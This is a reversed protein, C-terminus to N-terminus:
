LARDYAIAQVEKRWSVVLAHGAFRADDRASRPLRPKAVGGGVKDFGARSWYDCSLCARSARM